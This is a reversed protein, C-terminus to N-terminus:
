GAARDSPIKAMLQMAERDGPRLQLAAEVAARAKPIDHAGIYARGAAIWRDASSDGGSVAVERLADGAGEMTRRSDDVRRQLEPDHPDIALVRSWLQDAVVFRSPDGGVAWSTNTYALSFAVSLKDPQADLSRRYYHDAQAFHRAREPLEKAALGAVEEADGARAPYTADWPQLDMATRLDGGKAYISAVLPVSVLILSAVVLLGIVCGVVALRLGSCSTETHERPEAGERAQRLWTRVLKPDSRAVVCGILLWGVVAMPPEDISFAGQALYGVLAGVVALLVVDVRPALRRLQRVGFYLAGAVVSLYVSLGLIGANAAYGLFINHPSDPVEGAARAGESTSRVPLYSRYFTDLGTGALPNQKVIELAGAWFALRSHVTNTRSTLNDGTGKPPHTMSAASLVLVIAFVGLTLIRMWSGIFRWGGAAIVIALAIVAAVIGGRTQSYWIALGQVGISMGFLVRSITSRAALLYCLCIPLSVALYGGAFNSNGMTGIPYEPGRQDAVQWHHWDIGMAQFVMYVSMVTGAIAIGIVIGQIANSRESYNAVVLWMVAVYSAIPLLGNYRTPLGLLSFQPSVSLATALACAGVFALAMIGVVTLPLRRRECIAWTAWLGWGVLGLWWVVSLKVVSIADDAGITVILPTVMTMAVLCVRSYTLFRNSVWAGIPGRQLAKEARLAEDSESRKTGVAM